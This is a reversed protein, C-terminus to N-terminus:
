SPSFLQKSWGENGLQFASLAKSNKNRYVHPIVLTSCDTPFPNQHSIQGSDHYCITFNLNLIQTDLYVGEVYVHRVAHSHSCSTFREERNGRYQPPSTGLHGYRKIFVYLYRTVVSFQSPFYLWTGYPIQM